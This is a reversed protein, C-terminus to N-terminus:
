SAELTLPVVPGLDYQLRTPDVAVNGDQMELYQAWLPLFRSVRTSPKVKFTM